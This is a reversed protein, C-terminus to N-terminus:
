ERTASVMFYGSRSRDLAFAILLVGALMNGWRKKGWHQRRVATAGGRRMQRWLFRAVTHPVHLVSPTVNKSINEVKIERFGLRELTDAFARIEGWEQLAWCDCLSRYCARTFPNMKRTTKLFADAVVARGGPKLLRHMERLLPEKSHGPAYCSSELAWVGDFSGAAFPTATYDAVLTEVRRDFSERRAMDAAQRAQWPVITVASVTVNPMRTAAFRATAGLGSGMDLVRQSRSRDLRLLEIVELNMRQLMGELDFPNMRKAWYGFHMNFQRSWNAYDPGAEEYYRVINEAHDRAAAREQAQQM